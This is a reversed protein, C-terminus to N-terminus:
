GDRGFLASLVGGFVALLFIGVLLLALALWCGFFLRQYVRARKICAACYASGRVWAVDQPEVSSGCHACTM